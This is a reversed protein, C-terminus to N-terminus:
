YVQNTELSHYNGYWKLFWNDDLCNASTSRRKRSLVRTWVAEEIDYLEEVMDYQESTNPLNAALDVDEVSAAVDFHVHKVVDGIFIGVNSAHAM